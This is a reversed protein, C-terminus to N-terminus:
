RKITNRLTNRRSMRQVSSRAIKNGKRFCDFLNRSFDQHMKSYIFINAVCNAVQLISLFTNCKIIIDFEQKTVFSNLQFKSYIIVQFLDLPLVCCNFVCVVVILMKRAKNANVLHKKIERKHLLLCSTKLSKATMIGLIVMVVSAAFDRIFNGLSYIFLHIFGENSPICTNIGYEEATVVQLTYAYPSVLLISTIFTFLLWLYVFLKKMKNGLPDSISKYREFSILVLISQSITVTIPFISLIIKCGLYGFHWQKYQTVTGYIFLLPITTSAFLDTIALLLLLYEFHKRSHRKKWGFVYIVLSNGVTGFLFILVLESLAVAEVTGLTIEAVHTSTSNLNNMTRNNDISKNM